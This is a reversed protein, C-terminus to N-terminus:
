ENRNVAKIKLFQRRWPFFGNQWFIGLWIWCIAGRKFTEFFTRLPKGQSITRNHQVSIEMHSLTLDFSYLFYASPKGRCAVASCLGCIYSICPNCCRWLFLGIESFATDTGTLYPVQGPFGCSCCHLLLVLSLLQLLLLLLHPYLNSFTLYLRRMAAPVFNSSCELFGNGRM